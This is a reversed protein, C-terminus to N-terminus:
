CSSRNALPAGAAGYSSCKLLFPRAPFVRGSCPRDPKPHAPPSGCLFFEAIGLSASLALEVLGLDVGKMTAWGVSRSPITVRMEPMTDVFFKLQVTATSPRSRIVGYPELSICHGATLFWARANSDGSGSPDIVAGTCNLAGQFRGVAAFANNSGDANRLLESSPPPESSSRQGGSACAIAM